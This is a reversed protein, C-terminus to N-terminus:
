GAAVSRIAALLAQGAPTSFWAAHGCLFTDYAVDASARSGTVAHFYEVESLAFDVHVLPLLGALLHIAGADLPRVTRYGDILALAVDSRAADAGTDLALWAIANREIATALDFLGFTAAALGFDLVSTVHADDGRHSWCLNSVHWDGHTWRRPQAALLPQVAAHWPALLHSLDRPWDRSRLYGALGPREPLQGRLAAVPDAAVILESRAVLLHTDRQPAAYDEAADHLRALMQGAVWAHDLSTPPSWSMAERYLDIGTARAHVEYTYAGISIATQGDMDCLVEPVPYARNRLHAIFRHEETLTAPTRVSAHHRKILVSGGGTEVLSAASLPRPSHWAMRIPAGLPPYRQLLAKVEAISLPPWDPAIEDGALGHVRHTPDTMPLQLPSPDAIIGCDGAAAKSTPLGTKDSLGSRNGARSPM